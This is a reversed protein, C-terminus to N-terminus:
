AEIVIESPQKYSALREECWQKVDSERVHGRVRLAIDNEREATPIPRVVASQIGPLEQVAAELERPYINFGSRTFMPKIIRLFTVTGDRNRRGIDGTHLWEERVVLGREGGTVYGRFVGDGRVCIEGEAEDPLMAVVGSASRVGEDSWAVPSRIGVEVRPLPVGLTGRINPADTRNFLCVPGAETLGYGQRLEVGTADYWRDQLESALVAGGCICVRVHAFDDHGGGRRDIVALLAQYVAPVGVVLTIQETGLRELARTPNFRDMTAVAGGNLLPVAGTGTLGFLHALPLVALARDNATVGIAEATSRANAILNHHTLIAGLPRGAMASTYVIVAEEDRGAGSPDGELALGAHAGLDVDRSQGQWLVRARRPADDLLVRVVSDNIRPALATNTFVAGVNADALQYAIEPPAALPNVLM